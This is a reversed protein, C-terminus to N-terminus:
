LSTQPDKTLPWSSLRWRPWPFWVFCARMRFLCWKGWIQGLKCHALSPARDGWAFLSESKLTPFILHTQYEPGESGEHFSQEAAGIADILGCDRKREFSALVSDGQLAAGPEQGYAPWTGTQLEIWERGKGPLCDKGYESALQSWCPKFLLSSSPLSSSALTNRGRGRQKPHYRWCHSQRRWAELEWWIPRGEM